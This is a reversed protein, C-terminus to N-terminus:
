KSYSNATQIADNLFAAADFNPLTITGPWSEQMPAAQNIWADKDEVELWSGGADAITKKANEAASKFDEAAKLSGARQTTELIANQYEAPLSDFKAQNMVLGFAGDYIPLDTFFKTVEQLNFNTIGAPEFIYAQINNKEIAEYLDPPGM